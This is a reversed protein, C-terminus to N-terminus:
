RFLKILWKLSQFPWVYSCCHTNLIPLNQVCYLSIKGFTLNSEMTALRCLDGELAGAMGKVPTQLGLVICFDWVQSLPKESFLMLTAAHSATHSCLCVPPTPSVPSLQLLLRLWGKLDYQDFSFKLRSHILTRILSDESPFLFALGPENDGLLVASYNAVETEDRQGWQAAVSIFVKSYKVIHEPLDQPRWRCFLLM